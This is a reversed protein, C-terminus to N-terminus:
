GHNILMPLSHYLQSAYDTLGHFMAGGALAILALLAAFKPAFSLSSEQIQTVAQVMSILLGLLFTLALAPGALWLLATWAGVSVQHLNNM